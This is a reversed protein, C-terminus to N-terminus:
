KGLRRKVARNNDHIIQATVRAITGYNPEDVVGMADIYLLVKGNFLPLIDKKIVSASRNQSRKAKAVELELQAKAFEDQSVKLNEILIEVDPLTAIANVAPATEFQTFISDILSSEISYGKKILALNHTGIIDFILQSAEKVSQDPSYTKGLVLFYLSRFSDDRILDLGDLENEDKIQVIAGTLAKSEVKLTTFLGTLHIDSWDSSEYLAIVRKITSDVESVRSADLIKPMPM